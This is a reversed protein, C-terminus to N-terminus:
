RLHLGCTSAPQLLGSGSWCHMCASHCLCAHRAPATGRCTASVCCLFVGVWEAFNRKYVTATVELAEVASGLLFAGIVLCLTLPIRNAVDQLSLLDTYVDIFAVMSMFRMAWRGRPSEFFAAPTVIAMHWTRAVYEAAAGVASDSVMGARHM